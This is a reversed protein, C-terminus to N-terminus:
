VIRPLQGDNMLAGKTRDVADPGVDPMQSLELTASTDGICEISTTIFVTIMPLIAPVFIGLNYTTTWLFTVWPADQMSRLSVFSEGTSISPVVAAMMYGLLLSLVVCGNRMFPSGFTEFFIICVFVFFGLGMYEANAFPLHVNGNGSCLGGNVCGAGGCWNKMGSSLVSTGIVILTAGTVVPPFVRQIIKAPMFSILCPTLACLTTTGLM